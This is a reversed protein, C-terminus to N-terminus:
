APASTSPPRSQLLAVPAPLPPGHAIPQAPPVGRPLGAQRRCSGVAATGGGAAAPAWGPVWGGKKLIDADPITGTGYSDVFVSLPEPVGIAYSVQM